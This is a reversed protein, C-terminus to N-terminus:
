KNVEAALAAERLSVSPVVSTTGKGIKGIDKGRSSM